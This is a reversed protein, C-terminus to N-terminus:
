IIFLFIYLFLDLTESQSKGALKRVPLVLQQKKDVVVVDDHAYDDLPCFIIGLYYFPCIASTGLFRKLDVLTTYIQKFYPSVPSWSSQVCCCDWRRVLAIKSLTGVLATVEYDSSVIESAFSRNNSADLERKRIRIQNTKNRRTAFQLKQGLGM